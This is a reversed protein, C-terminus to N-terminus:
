TTRCNIILEVSRSSILLIHSLKDIILDRIEGVIANCRRELANVVMMEAITPRLTGHATPQPLELQQLQLSLAQLDVRLMTTGDVRLRNAAVELAVEYAAVAEDDLPM